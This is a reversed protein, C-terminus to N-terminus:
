DPTAADSLTSVPIRAVAASREDRPRLGFWVVAVSVITVIVDL